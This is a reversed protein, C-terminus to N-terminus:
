PPGSRQHIDAWFRNTRCIKQGENGNAGHLPIQRLAPTADKGTRCTVADPDGEGQPNDVTAKAILGV